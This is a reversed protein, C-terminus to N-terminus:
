IAKRPNFGLAIIDPMAVRNKQKSIEKRPNFGLAIIDPM